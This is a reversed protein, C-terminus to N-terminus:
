NPPNLEYRSTIQVANKLMAHAPCYKTQSLEIAREIKTMDLNEGWFQYILEIKTYVKPHENAVEAEVDIEFRNFPIRMKNLLSAVDAGTCGALSILILEKARSGANSGGFEEPGDMTIWHQTDAKGIFTVGKVHVAKAKAM